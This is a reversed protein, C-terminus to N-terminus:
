ILDKNAISLLVESLKNLAIHREYKERSIHQVVEMCGGTCCCPGFGGCGRRLPLDKLEPNNLDKDDVYKM